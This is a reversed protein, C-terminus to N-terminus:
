FRIKAFNLNNQKLTLRATMRKKIDRFIRSKELTRITSEFATEFGTINKKTINFDCM